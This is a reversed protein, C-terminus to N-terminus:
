HLRPALAQQPERLCKELLYIEQNLIELMGRQVGLLVVFRVIAPLGPDVLIPTKIEYDNVVGVADELEDGM